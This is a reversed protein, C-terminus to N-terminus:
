GGLLEQIAGELGEENVAGLWRLRMEGTRDVVITAPVGPIGFRAGTISGDPDEISPYTVGFERIHARAAAADDRYDIGLFVVGDDAYEEHLRQLFPQEIRCPACWAAWFNLVVIEGRYDAPGIRGGDLTEGALAPMPGSLEGQGLAPPRESGLAAWAGLGLVAAALVAAVVRVGAM